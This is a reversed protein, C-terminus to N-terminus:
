LLQLLRELLRIQDAVKVCGSGRQALPIETTQGAVEAAWWCHYGRLEVRYTADSSSGDFVPCLRVGRGSRRCPGVGLVSSGGVHATVSSALAKPSVRGVAPAVHALVISGSVLAALVVLRM